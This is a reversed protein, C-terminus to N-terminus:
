RCRRCRRSTEADPLRAGRSANFIERAQQLTAQAVQLRRNGALATKVTEDLKPSHFATWWEQGPAAGADAARTALEINPLEESTFREAAPAKPSVFDPGAVCATLTLSTLFTASLFVWTRM